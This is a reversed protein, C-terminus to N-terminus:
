LPFTGRKSTQRKRMTVQESEEKAGLKQFLETMWVIAWCVIAITIGIAM